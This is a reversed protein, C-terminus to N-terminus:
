LNRAGSGVTLNLTRTRASFRLVDGLKLDGSGRSGTWVYTENVGLSSSGNVITLGDYVRSNGMIGGVVFYTQKSYTENSDPLLTTMHICSGAPRLKSLTEVHSIGLIDSNSIKEVLTTFNDGSLKSYLGVNIDISVESLQRDFVQKAVTDAGVNIGAFFTSALTMSLLLALFLKWSRSLRKFIYSIGSGGGDKM